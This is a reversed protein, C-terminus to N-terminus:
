QALMFQVTVQTRVPVSQGKVTYPKYRWQRVATTAAEALQANGSVPSVQQVKGDAGILTDMTVAGQVHARRAADPYEPEVRNTLLNEAVEPSLQVFHGKFSDTALHILPAAKAETRPKPTEGREARALFNGRRSSGVLGSWPWHGM